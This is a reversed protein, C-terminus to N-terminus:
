VNVEIFRMSQTYHTLSTGSKGIHNAIFINYFFLIKVYKIQYTATILYVHCYQQHFVIM